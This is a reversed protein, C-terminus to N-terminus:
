FNRLDQVLIVSGGEERWEMNVYSTSPTPLSSNMLCDIRTERDLRAPAVSSQGKIGACLGPEAAFHKFKHEKMQLSLHLAAKTIIQRPTIDRNVFIGEDPPQPNYHQTM